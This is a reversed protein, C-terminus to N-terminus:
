GAEESGAVGGVEVAELIMSLHLMKPVSGFTIPANTLMVAKWTCPLRRQPVRGADMLLQSLIVEKWTSPLMSVPLKGAILKASMVPFLASSLVPQVSESEASYM